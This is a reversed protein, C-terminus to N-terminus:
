PISPFRCSNSTPSAWASRIGHSHSLNAITLWRNGEEPVGGSGLHMEYISIPADNCERWCEDMRRRELHLAVPGSSQRPCRGIRRRGFPDAKAATATTSRDIFFKYLAGNAVGAVFGVWVGSNGLSRLPHRSADWHNFDGIVSVSRANPAWVAFHTGAVGDQEILHAGLKDYLRHHTGEGLLYLDFDTLFSPKATM